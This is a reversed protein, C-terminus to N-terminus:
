GNMRNRLRNLEDEANPAEVAPARAAQPMDPLPEETSGGGAGSSLLANKAIHYGVNGATGWGDVNGAEDKAVFQKGYNVVDQKTNKWAQSFFNKTGNAAYDVAAGAKEGIKAGMDGIFGAGEQATNLAFDGVTEAGEAVNGAAEAIAGAAKGIVAGFGGM